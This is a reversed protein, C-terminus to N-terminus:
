VKGCVCTYHALWLLEEHQVSAELCTVKCKSNWRCIWTLVISEGERDYVGIDHLTSIVHDNSIIIEEPLQLFLSGWAVGCSHALWMVRTVWLISVGGVDGYKDWKGKQTLCEVFNVWYERGHRTRTSKKHENSSEGRRGGRSVKRVFRVECWERGECWRGCM